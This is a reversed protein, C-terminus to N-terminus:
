AHLVHPVCALRLLRVISSFLRVGDVEVMEDPSQRCSQRDEQTEEQGTGKSDMQTRSTKSNEGQAQGHDCYARVAVLLREAHKYSVEGSTV